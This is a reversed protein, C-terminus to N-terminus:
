IKGVAVTSLPSTIHGLEGNPGWYTLHWGSGDYIRYHQPRLSQNVLVENLVMGNQPEVFLWGGEWNVKRYGGDIYIKGNGVVYIAIVAHNAGGCLFDEIICCYLHQFGHLRAAKISDIMYNTCVYSGLKYPMDKTTDNYVLWMYYDNWEEVSMSAPESFPIHDAVALSILAVIETALILRFFRSVLVERKM